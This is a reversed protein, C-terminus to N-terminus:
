LVNILHTRFLVSENFVPDTHVALRFPVVKLNARRWAATKAFFPVPTMCLREFGLFFQNEQWAARM